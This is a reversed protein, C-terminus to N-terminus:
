SKKGIKELPQKGDRPRGLLLAGVLAIFLLLSTIEITLWHGTFLYTGFVKPEAWATELPVRSGPDTGVLLGALLLFAISLVTACVWQSRPFLATGTKEVKLMMVIFLFLIMIAGAYVIIELAGLFPAGLLYFLMASGFFSMVLYIVAHVMDRRTVALLTALIIGAGLLYFIITYITM